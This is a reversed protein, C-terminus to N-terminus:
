FVAKAGVTKLTLLEVVTFSPVGRNVYRAVQTFECKHICEKLWRPRRPRRTPARMAAFPLGVPTCDCKQKQNCLKRSVWPVM